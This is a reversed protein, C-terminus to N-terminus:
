FHPLLYPGTPRCLPDAVNDPGPSTNMKCHKFTNVVDQVSLFPNFDSSSLCVVPTHTGTAAAEREATTTTTTTTTSGPEESTPSAMISVPLDQVLPQAEAGSPTTILTM